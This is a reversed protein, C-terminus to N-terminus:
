KLKEKFENIEMKKIDHEWLRIVRFGKEELEKTRVKDLLIKEEISEKLRGNKIKDLNTNGHWFDGDCEIITKQQIIVGETEQQPIFIDCQYSHNIESIYKHTYFEIHLKSLFEQIKIEILTDKFPFIQNKRSTRWGRRPYLEKPFKKGRNATAVKEIHEKTKPIGRLAKSIKEKTEQSPFYGGKNKLTNKRKEMGIMISECNYKNKGKNYPIIGKKFHTRGSNFQLGKRGKNPSTKGIHIESMKRHYNEDKWKDKMRNSCKKRELHSYKYPIIEINNRKIITSICDVSYGLEKKVKRYSRLRIYSEIIIDDEKFNKYKVM